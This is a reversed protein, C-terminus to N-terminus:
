QVAALEAPTDMGTFRSVELEAARVYAEFTRRDDETPMPDDKNWSGVAIGVQRALEWNVPGSGSLLVRQLERFLPVDGLADGLPIEPLEPGPDQM